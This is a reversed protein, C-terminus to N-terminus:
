DDNGGNNPEYMVYDKWFWISEAFQQGSYEAKTGGQKNLMNRAMTTFHMPMNEVLSANISIVEWDADTSNENNEALVDKRYLVIDVYKAPVKKANKITTVRVPQEGEVRAVVKTELISDKEVKCMSTFFKNPSLPILIVGDRYGDKALYFNDSILTLLEENTGNFYGFRSEKTQRKVFDSMAINIM